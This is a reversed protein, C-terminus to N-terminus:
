KKMIHRFCIDAAKCDYLPNHAGGEVAPVLLSHRNIYTDVSTPDEGVALLCGAVDILPYPGDFDGIFGFARMDIFIKAEVPTGMHVIVHNAEKKWILWDHAFQKLMVKYSEHTEEIKTIKKYKM